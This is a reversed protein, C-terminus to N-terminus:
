MCETSVETAVRRWISPAPMARAALAARGAQAASSLYGVRGMVRTTGKGGPPETSTIARMYVSDSPRRSPTGMTTSLLGPAPPEM